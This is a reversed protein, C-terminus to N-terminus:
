PVIVYDGDTLKDTVIEGCNTCKYSVEKEKVYDYFEFRVKKKCKKCFATYEQQLM